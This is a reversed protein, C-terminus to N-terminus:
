LPALWVEWARGTLRTAHVVCSDSRAAGLRELEAVREFAPFGDVRLTSGGPAVVLELERGPTEEPLEVVEISRAGVAFLTGDRRVAEARYPRPLVADAAAALPALAAAPEGGDPVLRGDSLAAFGATAAVLAPADTATVADWERPRAIGHIGVEGWRPTTDLPEPRPPM